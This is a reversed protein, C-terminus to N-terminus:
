FTRVLANVMVQFILGKRSESSDMELWAQGLRPDQEVTIGAALQDAKWMEHIKAAAAGRGRLTEAVTFVIRDQVMPDLHCFWTPDQGISEKYGQVADYAIKAIQTARLGSGPALPDPDEAIGRQPRGEAHDRGVPAPPQADPVEDVVEMDPDPCGECPTNIGAAAEAALTEKRARDKDLDEAALTNPESGKEFHERITAERETVDEPSGKEIVQTDDLNVPGPRGKPDEGMTSIEKQPNLTEAAARRASLWSDLPLMVESDAGEYFPLWWEGSTWVAGIALVLDRYHELAEEPLWLPVPVHLPEREDM